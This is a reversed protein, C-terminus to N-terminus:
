LEGAEKLALCLKLLAKLPTDARCTHVGRGFGDVYSAGSMADPSGSITPATSVTLWCPVNVPKIIFRPLKELLYDSTYLPPLGDTCGNDVEYEGHAQVWGWNSLFDGQWETLEYVKRCLEYLESAQNTDTM